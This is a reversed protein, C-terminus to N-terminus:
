NFSYDFIGCRLNIFSSLHCSCIRFFGTLYGAIEPTKLLSGLMLAGIVNVSGLGIAGMIQGSSAM